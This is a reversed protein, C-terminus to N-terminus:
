FTFSQKNKVISLGINPTHLVVYYYNYLINVLFFPAAKGSRGHLLGTALGICKYM